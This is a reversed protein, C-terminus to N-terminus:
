VIYILYVRTALKLNDLKTVHKLDELSSITGLDIKEPLRLYVQNDKLKIETNSIQYEIERILTSATITLNKIAFTHDRM